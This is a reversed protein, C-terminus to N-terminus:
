DKKTTIILLAGKKVTIEVPKGAFENSVGIPFDNTLEVHSLEYKGGKESVGICKEDLSFISFYRDEQPELVTTGDIIVTYTSDKDMIVTDVGNKAMFKLMQINAFTHDPRGGTVGCFVAHTYGDKIIQRAIYYSDTDDKETPLTIVKAKTDTPPPASDFDGVILHPQVNQKKAHLYGRDACVIYDQQTIINNLDFEVPMSGIVICRKMM